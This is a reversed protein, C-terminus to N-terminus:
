HRNTENSIFGEILNVTYANKVFEQVLISYLVLTRSIFKHLFAPFEDNPTVIYAM